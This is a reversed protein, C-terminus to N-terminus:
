VTVPLCHGLVYTSIRGIQDGQKKSYSVKSRVATELFILEDLFASTASAQINLTRTKLCFRDSVFSLLTQLVVEFFSLIDEM